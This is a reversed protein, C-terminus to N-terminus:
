LSRFFKISKTRREMQALGEATAGNAWPLKCKRNLNAGRDVLMQLADVNSERAAIMLPTLSCGRPGNIPSGADLLAEILEATGRRLACSLANIDGQPLCYKVSAGSDLLLMAVRSGNNGGNHCATMLPTYGNKDHSDITANAAVLIEAAKHRGLRAAVHLATQGDPGLGDVDVGDDIIKKIAANKANAVGYQLADVRSRASIGHFKAM